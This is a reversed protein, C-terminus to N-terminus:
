KQCLEAYKNEITRIIQSFEDPDEMDNIPLWLIKEEPVKYAKFIRKLVDYYNAYHFTLYDHQGQEIDRGRKRVNDFLQETNRMIVLHIDIDPLRKLHADAIAYTLAVEMASMIGELRLLETFVLNSFLTSDCVLNTEQRAKWMSLFLSSYFANQSLLAFTEKDNYFLPLFPNKEVPEEVLACHYYQALKASLTSKGSGIPGIIGVRM